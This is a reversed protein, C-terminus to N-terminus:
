IHGQELCVKYNFWKDYDYMDGTETYRQWLDNMENFKKSFQNDGELRISSLWIANEM